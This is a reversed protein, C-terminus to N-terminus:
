SGDKKAERKPEQVETPGMQIMTVPKKFLHEQNAAHSANDFGPIHITMDWGQEVTRNYKQLRMLAADKEKESLHKIFGGTRRVRVRIFREDEIQERTATLGKTSPDDVEVTPPPPFKDERPRQEPMVPPNGEVEVTPPDNPDIPMRRVPMRAM